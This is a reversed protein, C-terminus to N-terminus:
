WDDRSCTVEPLSRAGQGCRDHPVLQLARCQPSQHGDHAQGQVAEIRTARQLTQGPRFHSGLCPAPLSLNHDESGAGGRLGALLALLARGAFTSTGARWQRVVSLPVPLQWGEAEISVALRSEVLEDIRGLGQQLARVAQTLFGYLKNEVVAKKQSEGQPVLLAGHVVAAVMATNRVECLLDLVMVAQEINMIAIAGDLNKINPVEIVKLELASAFDKLLNLSKNHLSSAFCETDFTATDLNLGTPYLVDLPPQLVLLPLVTHLPGDKLVTDHVTSLSVSQDCIAKAWVDLSRQTHEEFVKKGHTEVFRGVQTRLSALIPDCDLVERPPAMGDFIETQFHHHLRSFATLSAIYEGKVDMEKMCDIAISPHAALISRHRVYMLLSIITHSIKDSVGASAEPKENDRFKAVFPEGLRGALTKFNNSLNTIADSLLKGFTCVENQLSEASLLIHRTAVTSRCADLSIAVAPRPRSMPECEQKLQEGDAQATTDGDQAAVAADSIDEDCPLPAHAAVLRVFGELATSLQMRMALCCVDLCTSIYSEMAEVKFQLGSTSWRGICSCLDNGLTLVGQLVVTFSQLDHPEGSNGSELWLNLDDIIDGLGAEWRQVAADYINSAAEDQLGGAAHEKAITMAEKAGEYTSMAKAWEKAPHDQERAAAFICRRACRVSSASPRRGEENLVCQFVVVMSGMMDTVHKAAELKGVMEAWCAKVVVLENIFEELPGQDQVITKPLKHMRTQVADVVVTSLLAVLDAGVDLFRFFGTAKLAASRSRKSVPTHEQKAHGENDNSGEAEEEPNEAPMQRLEDQWRALQAVDVHSLADAM